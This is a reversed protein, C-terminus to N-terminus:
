REGWGQEIAEARLSDGGGSTHHVGVGRAMVASGSTTFRADADLAEAAIQVGWHKRLRALSVHDGRATM